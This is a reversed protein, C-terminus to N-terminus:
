GKFHKNWARAMEDKHREVVRQLEKLRKTSLGSHRELSIIPELWFKAEGDPGSVHVHKRREELSFFFFRYQKHRLVTPSM